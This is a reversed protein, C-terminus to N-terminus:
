AAEQPNNELWRGYEYVDGILEERYRRSYDYYWLDSVSNANLGLGLCRKDIKIRKIDEAMNGFHSLTGPSQKRILEHMAALAESFRSIDQEKVINFDYTWLLVARYQETLKPHKWITWWKEQLYSDRMGLLNFPRGCLTGVAEWVLMAGLWSNPYYQVPNAKTKYVKCISTTSM